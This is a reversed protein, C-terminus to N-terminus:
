PRIRGLSVAWRLFILHQIERETWCKAHLGLGIRLAVLNGTTAPEGPMRCMAFLARVDPTPPWSGTM